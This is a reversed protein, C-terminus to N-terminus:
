GPVVMLVHRNGSSPCPLRNLTVKELHFNVGLPLLERDNPDAIHATVHKTVAHQETLMNLEYGCKVM